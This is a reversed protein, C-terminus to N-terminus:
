LRRVRVEIYSTADIVFNTRAVNRGAYQPLMTMTRIHIRLLM